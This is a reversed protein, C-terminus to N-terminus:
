NSQNIKYIKKDIIKKMRKFCQTITLNSNNIVVADKVKKLPSIKRTFDNKDREKISKYVENVSM